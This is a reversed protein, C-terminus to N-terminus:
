SLTSCYPTCIICNHLEFRILDYWNFECRHLWSVVPCSCFILDSYFLNSPDITSRPAVIHDVHYPITDYSIMKHLIIHLALRAWTSLHIFLSASKYLSTSISTSSSLSPHPLHLLNFYGSSVGFPCMREGRGRGEGEREEAKSGEVGKWMLWYHGYHLAM